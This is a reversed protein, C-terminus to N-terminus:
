AIQEILAALERQASLTKDKAYWRHVDEVFDEYAKHPAAKYAVVQQHLADPRPGWEALAQLSEADLAIWKPISRTGGSLFADMLAPYSDRLFIGLRINDRGEAMLQFLPVLQAADGCWGESLLVWHQPREINDLAARLEPLLSTTKEVRRMRALNLGSYHTLAESQNPGTSLGQSHLAKVLAYYDPYSLAEALLAPTFLNQAVPDASHNM